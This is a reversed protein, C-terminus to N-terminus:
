PIETTSSQPEDGSNSLRLVVCRRGHFTKALIWVEDFSLLDLADGVDRQPPQAGPGCCAELQAAANGGDLAVVLWKGGPAGRTPGRDHKHRIAAQVSPVLYEVDGVFFGPEISAADVYVGGYTGGAPVPPKLVLVRRPELSDAVCDVIDAPYWYDCHQALHTHAWDEFSADWPQAAQWEAAFWVSQSVYPNYPDPDLIRNAHLQMEEATGGRQEVAVLVPIM